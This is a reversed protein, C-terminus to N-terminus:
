PAPRPDSASRAPIQPRWAWGQARVATQHQREIACREREAFRQDILGDRALFLHGSATVFQGAVSNLKCQALMVM